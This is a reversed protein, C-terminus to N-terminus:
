NYLVKGFLTTITAKRCKCQWKNNPWRIVSDLDFNAYCSFENALNNRHKPQFECIKLNLLKDVNEKMVSGTCVVIKDKALLKITESTKEICEEALFPPDAIVLDYTHELGPPM